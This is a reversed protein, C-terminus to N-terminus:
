SHTKKVAIDVLAEKAAVHLSSDARQDPNQLVKEHNKVIRRVLLLDNKYV